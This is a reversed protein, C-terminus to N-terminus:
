GSTQVVEDCQRRMVAMEEPAPTTYKQGQRSSMARLCREFAPKDFIFVITANAKSRNELGIWTGRPIFATAGSRAEYERGALTIWLMGDHVFVVEDEHLHKHVPIRNGPPMVETGVVLTNSGTSIPDVKFILPKSGLLLWKDGESAQFVTPRPVSSITNNSSAGVQAVLLSLLVVNVNQM